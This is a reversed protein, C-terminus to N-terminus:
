EVVEWSDEIVQSLTKGHVILEQHLLNIGIHALFQSYRYPEESAEPYFLRVMSAFRRDPTDLRDERGESEPRLTRFKTVTPTGLLGDSVRLKKALTVATAVRYVDAESNFYSTEEKLVKILANSEEPLGVQVRDEAM